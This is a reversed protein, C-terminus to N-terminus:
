WLSYIWGLTPYQKQTLAVGAGLSYWDQVVELHWLFYWSECPTLTVGPQAQGHSKGLFWFYSGQLKMNSFSLVM